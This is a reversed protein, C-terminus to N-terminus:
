LSVVCSVSGAFYKPEKDGRETVELMDVNVGSPSFGTKDRFKGVEQNIFAQLTEELKQREARLEDVKM